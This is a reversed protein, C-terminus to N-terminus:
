TSRIASGYSLHVLFDAVALESGGCEGLGKLVEDEVLELLLLVCGGLAEDPEVPLHGGDTNSEDM